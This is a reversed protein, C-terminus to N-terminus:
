GIRQSLGATDMFLERAVHPDWRFNWPALYLGCSTLMDALGELMLLLRRALLGRQSNFPLGAAEFIDDVTFTPHGSFQFMVRSHPQQFKSVNLPLGRLWWTECDVMYLYDGLVAPSIAFTNTSLIRGDRHMATYVLTNNGYLAVQFGGDDERQAALVPQYRFSFLMAGCTNQQM